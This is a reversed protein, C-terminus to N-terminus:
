GWLGKRIMETQRDSRRQLRISKMVWVVKQQNMKLERAIESPKLGREMMERIHENSARRPARDKPEVETIVNRNSWDPPLKVPEERTGPNYGKRAWNIAELLEDSGKTMKSRHDLDSSTISDM